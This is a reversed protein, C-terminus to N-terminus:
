VRAPTRSVERTRTAEMSGPTAARDGGRTPRPRAPFAAGVRALTRPISTAASTATASQEEARTQEDSTKGLHQRDIRSELRVAGDDGGHRDGSGLILGGPTGRLEICNEEFPQSCERADAGRAGHILQRQGTGVVVARESEFPRRVWAGDHVGRITVKRVGGRIADGRWPIEFCDTCSEPLAAEQVIM